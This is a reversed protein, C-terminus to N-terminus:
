GHMVVQSVVRALQKQLKQDKNLKAQESTQDRALGVQNPCFVIDTNSSSSQLRILAPLCLFGMHSGPLHVGPRLGAPLQALPITGNAKLRSSATTDDCPFLQSSPKSALGSWSPGVDGSVDGDDQGPLPLPV